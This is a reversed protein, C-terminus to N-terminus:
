TPIGEQTPKPTLGSIKPFVLSLPFDPVELQLPPSSSLHSSRRPCWRSQPPHYEELLRREYIFGGTKQHHDGPIAFACPRM